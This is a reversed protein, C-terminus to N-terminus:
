AARFESASFKCLMNGNEDQRGRAGAIYSSIGLFIIINDEPSFEGPQM